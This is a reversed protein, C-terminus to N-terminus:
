CVDFLLNKSGRPLNQTPRLLSTLSHVNINPTFGLPCFSKPLMNQRCAKNGYSVIKYRGRALSGRVPVRLACRASNGDDLGSNGCEVHLGIGFSDQKALGM